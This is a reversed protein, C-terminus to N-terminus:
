IRYKRRVELYKNANNINASKSFCNNQIARRPPKQELILKCNIRLLYKPLNGCTLLYSRVTFTEWFPALTYQLRCAMFLASISAFQVKHTFQLTIPAPATAVGQWIVSAVLKQKVGNSLSCPPFYSSSINNKVWSYLYGLTIHSVVLSFLAVRSGKISVNSFHAWSLAKFPPKTINNLFFFFTGM